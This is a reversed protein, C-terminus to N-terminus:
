VGVIRRHGHKRRTGTAGPSAPQPGINAVLTTMAAICRWGDQEAICGIALAFSGRLMERAEDATEMGVAIGPEVPQIAVPDGLDGAPCVDAALEEVDMSCYTRGGRAFREIMDGSEVPDFVINSATRGVLSSGCPLCTGSRREHRETV